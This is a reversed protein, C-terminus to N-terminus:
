AHAVSLRGQTKVLKALDDGNVYETAFVICDGARFASHATVINPHQLQAANRIERLFGELVKRRGVLDQNIIKLVEKRGMLTNNALYVGGMGGRGLEGIVEYDPHHALGPPLAEATPPIHPAPEGAMGSLEVLSSGGPPPSDPRAQAVRRHCAPCSKLH